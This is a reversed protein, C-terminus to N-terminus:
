SGAPFNGDQVNASTILYPYSRRAMDLDAMGGDDAMLRSVYDVYESQMAAYDFGKAQWLRWKTGLIMADDDLLTTENDATFRKQVNGSPTVVWGDSVFEFVLADPTSEATPPPWLRWVTPKRGIQRWRLRPGTTVIGSRQWQDFQPSQPGILMWHNTRDWWTHSIYRDFDSPLNYTDRAFTFTQATGNETAEMELTCQTLSDFQVLRQSTPMGTGTVIYAGAQLLQGGVINTITTGGLAVDGVMTVPAEVNVIYESQLFTWDRARYLEMGERNILAFLQQATRDSSGVIASPQPLGLEACSTQAIQLLTMTM